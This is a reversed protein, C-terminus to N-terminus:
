ELTTLVKGSALEWVRVVGDMGGAAVFRGDGSLSESFLFGSAGEMSRRKKGDLGFVSLTADGGSAFIEDTDGVFGVGTVEKKFGEINKKREGTAVDWIKAMGDAGASVLNKGNAQWAVDMVYHTHGELSYQVNKATLDLVRAFRDASASALRQSDPSFQLGFVVDSHVDDYRQVVDMTALDWILIEGSRSPDGGGSALWKGDPSFDLANIRDAFDGERGITQRLVWDERLSFVRASGDLGVMLVSEETLAQLRAHAKGETPILNLAEGTEAWWVNLVGDSEYGFVRDGSPSFGVWEFAQRAAVLQAEARKLQEKLEEELEVATGERGKDQEKQITLREVSQAALDRENLALLTDRKADLDRKQEAEVAKQAADVAAKAAKKLEELGSQSEKFTANIEGLRLASDRVEALLGDLKETTKEQEGAPSGTKIEEAVFARLEDRVRDFTERANRNEEEVHAFDADLKELAQVASVHRSEAEGLKSEVEKGAAQKEALSKEANKLRDKQKKFDETLKELDAKIQERANEQLGLKRKAVGVQKQEHRAGRFQRGVKGKELDLLSLTGEDTAAM